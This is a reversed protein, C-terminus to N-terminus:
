GYMLDNEIVFLLVKDVKRISSLGTFNFYVYGDTGLRVIEAGGVVDRVGCTYCNLLRINDRFLEAEAIDDGYFSVARLSEGFAPVRAYVTSLVYRDPSSAILKVLEDVKISVRRLQAGFITRLDNEWLYDVIKRGRALMLFQSGTIRCVLKYLYPPERGEEEDLLPKPSVLEFEEWGRVSIPCKFTISPSVLFADRAVRQDSAFVFGALHHDDYRM